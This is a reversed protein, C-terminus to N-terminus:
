SALAQSKRHEKVVKSVRESLKAGVSTWYELREYDVRAQEIPQSPDYTGIQELARGDRAKEKDTVVIHYFPRKKSGRRSLRVKVM